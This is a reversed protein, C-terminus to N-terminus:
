RRPSKVSKARIFVMTGPGEDKPMILEITNKDVITITVDKTEGDFTGAIAVSAAKESKIVYTGEKKESKGGFSFSGLM